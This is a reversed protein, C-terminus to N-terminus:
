DVFAPSHTVLDPDLTAQLADNYVEHLYTKIENRNRGTIRLDITSTLSPRVIVEHDTWGDYSGHENMHHFSTNFILKETTSRDDLKTGNDIGSGSPLLNKVIWNIRAGHKLRWADNGTKHCNEIAQLLKAIEMYVKTM